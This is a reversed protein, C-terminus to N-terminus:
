KKKKKVVVVVIAVAVAAVAVVALVIGAPFANEKSAAGTETAASASTDDDTTVTTDPKASEVSEPVTESKSEEPKKTAEAQTEPEESAGPGTYGNADPGTGIIEYYDFNLRTGGFQEEANYVQVTHQKDELGTAEFFITPTTDNASAPKLAGEVAPYETGDILVRVANATGMDAAINRYCTGLKIATGTFTIETYMNDLAAIGQSLLVNYNSLLKFESLHNAGLPFWLQLEGNDGIVQGDTIDLPDPVEIETGTGEEDIAFFKVNENCLIPYAFYGDDPIVVTAGTPLALAMFLLVCLIVTMWKKM